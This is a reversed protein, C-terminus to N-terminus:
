WNWSSQQPRRMDFYNMNWFFFYTKLNCQPALAHIRTASQASMANVAQMAFSRAISCKRHNAIADNHVYLLLAEKAIHPLSM